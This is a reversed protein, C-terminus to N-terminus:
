RETRRWDRERRGFLFSLYLPVKWLVYFPVLLLYTFPITERGFRAWGVAVGITVLGLAVVAIQLPFLPGGFVVLLGAAASVVLLLGVLFSLPPVMVDAGLV